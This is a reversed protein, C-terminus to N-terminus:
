DWPGGRGLQPTIRDEFYRVHRRAKEAKLYETLLRDAEVIRFDREVMWRADAFNRKVGPTAAEIRFIVWGQPTKEPGGIKGVPTAFMADELGTNQQTGRILEGALGDKAASAGDTSYTKVMETFSAGQALQARVSDALSEHDLVILRPSVTPQDDYHKPDAAYYKKLADETVKVKAEFMEHYFRQVQFGEIMNAVQQKTDPDEGLGRRKAEALLAPALAIRDVSGELTGLERVEPRAYPPTQAWFRLYDAITIARDGVRALVRATDAGQVSPLPLNPRIVNQGTLSDVDTRPRIRLHLDLLFRLNAEDFTRGVKQALENRFQERLRAYQRGQLETKIALNEGLAVATRKTFSRVLILTPQGGYDQPDSVQGPRMSWILTALTDPIQEAAVFRFSDATALAPGERRIAADLEAFPTGFSLKARWSRARTWDKFAVFRIEALEQKERRYRAVDDDTPPKLGRTLEDFLANQAMKESLEEVKASEAPTMVYHMRQAAEALLRRDVVSELFTKRSTLADGPPREPPSLMWWAHAFDHPYVVGGDYTALASDDPAASAGAAPASAARAPASLLAALGLVILGLGRATRRANRPALHRTM